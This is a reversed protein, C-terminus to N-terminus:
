MLDYIKMDTQLLELSLEAFVQQAVIREVTRCPAQNEAAIERLNENIFFLFAPISACFNIAQSFKTIRRPGLVMRNEAICPCMESFDGSCESIVALFEQSKHLLVTSKNGYTTKPATIESHPTRL